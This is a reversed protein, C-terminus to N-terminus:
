RDVPLLTPQFRETAACADSKNTLFYVWILNSSKEVFVMAQKSNNIFVPNIPGALDCLVKVLPSGSRRNDHETTKGQPCIKCDFQNTDLFRMGIVNSELKIINRQIFKPYMVPYM